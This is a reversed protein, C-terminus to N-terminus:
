FRKMETWALHEAHTEGAGHRPKAKTLLWFSCVRTVSAGEWRVPETAGAREEGASIDTIYLLHIEQKEADRSWSGKQQWPCSWLFSWKTSIDPFPDKLNDHQIGHTHLDSFIIKRYSTNTLSHKVYLHDSIKIAKPRTWGFICGFIMMAMPPTAPEPLNLSAEEPTWTAVAPSLAFRRAHGLASYLFTGHKGSNTLIVKLRKIWLLIACEPIDPAM